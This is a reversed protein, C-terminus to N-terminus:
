KRKVFFLGCIEAPSYGLSSIQHFIVVMLFRVRSLSYPKQYSGKKIITLSLRPKIAM